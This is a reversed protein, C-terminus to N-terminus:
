VCEMISEADKVRLRGSLLEPLLADRLGSLARNEQLGQHARRLIPETRVGFASLVDKEPLQVEYNGMSDPSVAPYASGQSVSECYKGFEADSVIAFLLTSPVGKPSM